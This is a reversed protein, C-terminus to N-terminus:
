RCGNNSQCSSNGGWTEALIIIRGAVWVVVKMVCLSFAFASLSQLFFFLPLFCFLFIYFAVLFKLSSLNLLHSFDFQSSQGWRLVVCLWLHPHHNNPRKQLCHPCTGGPLICVEQVPLHLNEMWRFWWMCLCTLSKCRLLTCPPQLLFSLNHKSPRRIELSIAERRWGLWSVVTWLVMSTVARLWGVLLLSFSLLPCPSIVGNNSIKQTHSFQESVTIPSYHLFLM